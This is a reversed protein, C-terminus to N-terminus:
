GCFSIGSTCSLNRDDEVSVILCASEKSRHVLRKAGKIRRIGAALDPSLLDCCGAEPALRRFGALRLNITSPAYRRQRLCDPLPHDGNQQVGATTGFLVTLLIASQMITPAGSSPSTLGNLVASKSQELNPLKLITTPTRKKTRKAVHIAERGHRFPHHRTRDCSWCHM